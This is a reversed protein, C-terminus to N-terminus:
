RLRSMYNPEAKTEDACKRDYSGPWRMHTGICHQNWAYVMMLIPRPLTLIVMMVNIEDQSQFGIHAEAGPMTVTIQM